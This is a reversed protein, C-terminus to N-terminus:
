TPDALKSEIFYIKGFRVLLKERDGQWWLSSKQREGYGLKVDLWLMFHRLGLVPLDFALDIFGALITKTTLAYVYVSPVIPTKHRGFDLVSKVM